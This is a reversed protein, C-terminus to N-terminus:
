LFGADLIGLPREVVLAWLVDEADPESDTSEDALPVASPRRQVDRVVNRAIQFLWGAFTGDGRFRRLQALATTFVTSM